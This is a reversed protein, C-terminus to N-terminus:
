LVGKSHADEIFHQICDSMASKIAETEYGPAKPAEKHSAIARSYLVKGGRRVEFTVAVDIKQLTFGVWNYSFRDITGHITSNANAALGYGSFRLEKRVADTFLSAIDESLYITGIGREEPQNPPFKGNRAATYIFQEVAVSGSGKTLNSPTYSIPLTAACGALFASGLLLLFRILHKM